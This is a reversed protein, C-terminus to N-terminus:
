DTGSIIVLRQTEPEPPVESRDKFPRRRNVLLSRVKVIEPGDAMEVTSDVEGTAAKGNLRRRRTASRGSRTPIM